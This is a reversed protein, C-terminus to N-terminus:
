AFGASCLLICVLLVIDVPAPVEQRIDLLNCPNFEEDSRTSNRKVGVEQVENGRVWWIHV